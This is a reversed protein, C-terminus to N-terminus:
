LGCEELLKEDHLIADVPGDARITGQDLVIARSSLTEIFAIDHTAILM